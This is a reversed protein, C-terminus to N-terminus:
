LEYKDKKYQKFVKFLKLKFDNDKIVYSEDFANDSFEDIFDYVEGLTTKYTTSCEKYIKNENHGELKICKIFDDVLDQVYVYTMQFNRDYVITELNNVKNYIWTTIVSNYNPKCGEGFVHPIKFISCEVKEEISFREILHESERKTQGYLNNSSDSHISSALIIPIKRQTKKVASILSKTLHSNSNEFQERTSNPKVEGALHFIFDAEKVMSNLENIHNNRCFEKIFFPMEELRPILNRAIFGKSGTVLLNKM